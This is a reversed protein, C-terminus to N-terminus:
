CKRYGKDTSLTLPVGVPYSLLVIHLIPSAGLAEQVVPKFVEPETIWSINIFLAPYGRGVPPQVGFLTTQGKVPFPYVLKQVEKIGWKEKTISVRFAVYEGYGEMPNPEKRQQHLYYLVWLWANVPLLILVVLTLWESRSM